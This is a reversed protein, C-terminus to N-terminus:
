QKVAKALAVISEPKILVNWPAGFTGSPAESAVKDLAKAQETKLVDGFPTSWKTAELFEKSISADEGAKRMMETFTEPTWSGAAVGTISTASKNLMEAMVRGMDNKSVGLSVQIQRARDAATAVSKWRLEADPNTWWKDITVESQFGMLKQYHPSTMMKMQIERRTRDDMHVSDVEDSVAIGRLFWDLGKGETAGYDGIQGGFVGRLEEAARGRIWERYAMPGAGIVFGKKKLGHITRDLNDANEYSRMRSFMTSRVRGMQDESLMGSLEALSTEQTSKGHKLLLDGNEAMTLYRSGEVLQDGEMFKGTVVMGRTKGFFLEAMGAGRVGLERRFTGTVDRLREDTYYQTMLERARNVQVRISVDKGSPDLFFGGGGERKIGTLSGGRRLASAVVPDFNVLGGRSVEATVVPKFFSQVALSGARAGGGETARASEELLDEIRMDAPVEKTGKASVRDYISAAADLPSGTGTSAMAIEQAGQALIKNFVSNMELGRQEPSRGGQDGYKERSKENFVMREREFQEYRQRAETPQLGSEQAFRHLAMLRQQEPTGFMGFMGQSMMQQTAQFAVRGGLIGMMRHQDPDYMSRIRSLPDAAMQGGIAGMTQMYGMGGGMFREFVGPAQTAMMGINTVMGGRQWMALNQEMRVHAQRRLAEHADTGGYRFLEDQSIVGSREWGRMVEMQGMMATGTAAQGIGLQRGVDEFEKLATFVDRRNMGMRQAASVSRKAMVAIRDASGYVQGMASFFQDVEDEAINLTQRIDRVSEAMRRMGAGFAEPGRAALREIGVGGMTTGAARLLGTAEERSIGMQAQMGGMQRAIQRGYQRAGSQDIGTGLASINNGMGAEILAEPRVYRMQEQALRGFYELDRAEFEQGTRRMTMSLVGFGMASVADYAGQRSGHALRYSLEERALTQAQRKDMDLRQGAFKGLGFPMGEGFATFATQWFGLGRGVGGGGGAGAPGFPIDGQLFAGAAGATAGIGSIGQGIPAMAVGGMRAGQRVLSNLTDMLRGAPTGMQPYQSMGGAQGPGAGMFVARQEQYTQMMQARSKQMFTDSDQRARQVAMEIETPM